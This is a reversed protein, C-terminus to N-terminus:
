TSCFKGEKLQRYPTLFGEILLQPESFTDGTKTESLMVIDVNNGVYKELSEFKNRISNINIHGITVKYPNENRLRKLERIDYPTEENM